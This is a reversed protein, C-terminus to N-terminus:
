ELAEHAKEILMMGLQHAMAPDMALQFIEPPLFESMQDQVEQSEHPHSHFQVCLWAAQNAPQIIRAVAGNLLATVPFGDDKIIIKNETKM